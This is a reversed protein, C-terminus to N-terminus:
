RLTIPIAAGGRNSRISAFARRVALALAVVYAPPTRLAEPQLYVRLNRFTTSEDISARRIAWDRTVVRTSSPIQRM